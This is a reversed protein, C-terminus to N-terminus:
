CGSLWLTSVVRLVFKLEFEKMELLELVVLICLSCWFKIKM